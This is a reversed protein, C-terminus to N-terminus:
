AMEPEPVGAQVWVDLLFQASEVDMKQFTVTFHSAHHRYVVSVRHYSLYEVLDWMCSFPVKACPLGADDPAAILPQRM